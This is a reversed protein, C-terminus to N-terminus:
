CSERFIGGGDLWFYGHIASVNNVTSSALSAVVDPSALPGGACYKEATDSSMGMRLDPTLCLGCMLFCSDLSSGPPCTVPADKPSATSEAGVLAYCASDVAWVPAVAVCAATLVKLAFVLTNVGMQFVVPTKTKATNVHV